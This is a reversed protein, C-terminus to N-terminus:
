LRLSHNGHERKSTIRNRWFNCKELVARTHEHPDIELVKKYFTNDYKHADIFDPNINLVKSLDLPDTCLTNSGKKSIM